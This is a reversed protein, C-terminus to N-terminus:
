EEFPRGEQAAEFAKQYRIAEKTKTRKRLYNELIKSGDLTAIIQEHTLVGWREKIERAIEYVRQPPYQKKFADAELAFRRAEQAQSSTMKKLLAVVRDMLSPDELLLELQEKSLDSQRLLETVFKQQLEALGPGDLSEKPGSSPPNMKEIMYLIIDRIYLGM